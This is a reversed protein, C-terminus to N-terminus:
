KSQKGEVESPIFKVENRIVALILVMTKIGCKIRPLGWNVDNRARREKGPSAIEFRSCSSLLSELSIGIM